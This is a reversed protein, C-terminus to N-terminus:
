WEDRMIQQERLGDGKWQLRGVLDGFSRRVGNSPGQGVVVVLEVSGPPLEVPVDLRLHGDAGIEGTAKLVTM